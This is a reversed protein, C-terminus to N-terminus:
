RNYELTKQIRVWIYLDVNAPKYIPSCYSYFCMKDNIDFIAIERVTMEIDTDVIVKVYYYNADTARSISYVGILSEVSNIKDPKWAIGSTGDGIHAYSLKEYIYSMLNGRRGIARVVAKGKVASRFTITCYNRTTLVVDGPYIVNNNDDYCIVQVAQADFM